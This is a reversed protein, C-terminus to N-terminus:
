YNKKLSKLLDSLEDCLPLLQQNRKEVVEPMAALEPHSRDSQKQIRRISKLLKEVAAKDARKVKHSRLFEEAEYVLDVSTRAITAEHELKKDERAHQRAHRIANEIEEDTMNSAGTITIAQQKGTRKDTASVNVIGDADISFTVDIQPSGKMARRIGNLRFEGLTTNDRAMKREGQLVHIDIYTQFTVSTTFIMSKKVPVPTNRKIIRTMVGGNTEIGLSLPIVDRLTLDTVEGSLIGAQLAAGMAVCEDPNIENFPDRGTYRKVLDQAAPIRSSGGVMLVKSLKGPKVGADKMALQIPELTAEMLDATLENFKARTLEMDLHIPGNENEGLFPLHITTTEKESLEIKAAEAADRLRQLATENGRLDCLTQDFFEAILYDTLREDFDDGGLHNNGATALVKIVGKTIELISVDFTGGGFDYVMIKQPNFKDVGYALAASTPENIIRRVNLGAIRGADKTAQRQADTFYAPVTIVADTIEEGVFDEADLKLQELIMASIEQPTYSIGDIEVTEETGMKRKISSITRDPAITAQRKAAQGVLREGEKTFSVVSPTTRGGDKNPVVVPKGNELVAVCSNTTGLDIGILKSM